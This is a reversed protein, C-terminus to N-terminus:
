ISNRYANLVRTSKYLQEIDKSQEKFNQLSPKTLLSRQEDYRKKMRINSLEEPLILSNNATMMGLEYCRNIIGLIDESKKTDSKGNDFTALKLREKWHANEYNDEGNRVNDNSIVEGSELMSCFEYFHISTSGAPIIDTGFGETAVIGFAIFTPHLNKIYVDWREVDEANYEVGNVLVTNSKEVVEENEVLTNQITSNSIKSVDKGQWIKTNDYSGIAQFM